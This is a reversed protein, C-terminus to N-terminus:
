RAVPGTDASAPSAAGDTAENSDCTKIELRLIRGAEGEFRLLDPQPVGGDFDVDIWYVTGTRQRVNLKPDFGLARVEDVRTMARRRETFLGLSVTVGSSPNGPMIYSDAIGAKRLRTVAEDADKFTKISELAVWYGAWVTGEVARQRPELGNRLLSSAARVTETLDIFPGVSFCRAGTSQVPVRDTLPPLPPAERGLMLPVSRQPVVLTPETPPVIWSHWAFYGVNALVLVLCLTRIL